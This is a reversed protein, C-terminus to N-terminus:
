QKSTFNIRGKAEALNYLAWELVLVDLIVTSSYLQKNGALSNVDAQQMFFM